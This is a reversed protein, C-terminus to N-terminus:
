SGSKYDFFSSRCGANESNIVNVNTSEGIQSLRNGNEAGITSKGAVKTKSELIHVVCEVPNSHTPRRQLPVLQHKHHGLCTQYEM